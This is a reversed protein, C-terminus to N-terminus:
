EERGEAREDLVRDGQRLQVRWNTVPGWRRIQEEGIRFRAIQRGRAGDPYRVALRRVEPHDAQRYAMFVFVPGPLGAAPAEWHIDYIQEGARQLDDMFKILQREQVGRGPLAPVEGEDRIEVHQISQAGAMTVGAVM